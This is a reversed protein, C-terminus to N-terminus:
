RSVPIQLETVWTSQDTDVSDVYIERTPGAFTFGEQETWSILRDWSTQITDMAGLHVLTTAEHSPIDVVEFGSIADGDYMWGAQVLLGGGDVMAYTAVPIEPEVEHRRLADATQDFMAGIVSPVEHPGVVETTSALIRFAPLSKLVIEPLDIDDPRPDTTPEDTM